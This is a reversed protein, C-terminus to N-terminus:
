HKPQKGTLVGSKQREEKGKGPVESSSYFLMSPSWCHEKWTEPLNYDHACSKKGEECGLCVYECAGCIPEM